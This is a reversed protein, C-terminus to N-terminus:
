AKQYPICTLIRLNLSREASLPSVFGGRLFELAFALAIGAALGFIGALAINFAKRPRDPRLPTIAPEIISINVIKRRDLEESIRAEEVKELTRGHNKAQHRVARQLEELENERLDLHRLDEHLQDIQEEIASKRAFLANYAAQARIIDLELQERIPNKGKSVRTAVDLEVTELFSEVLKIEERVDQVFMSEEHYRTLLQQEKLRLALLQSKADDVVPFRADEARLPINEQLRSKQEDLSALRKEEEKLSNETKRLETDLAAVQELMLSRQQAFAFVGHEQRFDELRSEADHLQKEYQVLRSQLIESQPGSFIELRKTKFEEILTNLTQAAMAPNPHDFSLVVVNSKAVDTVSLNSGFIFAATELLDDSANVHRPALADRLAARFGRISFLPPPTGIGPYLTEIGIQQIVRRALARSSLIQAESNVLEQRRLQVAPRNDGVEPRYVYERGVKLLLRAEAQYIPTMQLNIATVGAVLIFFIFLIMYKRKFLIVLIDRLDIDPSASSTIM